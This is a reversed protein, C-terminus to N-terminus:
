PGGGGRARRGAVGPAFRPAGEATAGVARVGRRAEPLRGARRLAVAKWTLAKAESAPESLAEDPRDGVVAAAIRLAAPMLSSADSAADLLPCGDWPWEPLLPPAASRGALAAALRRWGEEPTM